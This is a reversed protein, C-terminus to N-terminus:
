WQRDALTVSALSWLKRVCAIVRTRTIDTGGPRLYKWLSYGHISQQNNAEHNQGGGANIGRIAHLVLVSIDDASFALARGILVALHQAGLFSPARQPVLIPVDLAADPVARDIVQALHM